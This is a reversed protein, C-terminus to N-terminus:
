SSANVARHGQWPTPQNKGGGTEFVCIAVFMQKEREGLLLPDLLAAIKELVDKM